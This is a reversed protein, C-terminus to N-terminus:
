AGGEELRLRRALERRGDHLHKKVTGTAIGLADAIEAVTRDELYHLAVVQAQRRPLRRVAGWFEVDEASLQALTSAQGFALRGLAKAESLRRRFASVSMNAVVRRVWSGPQEYAAIRAWDRHAALFAEQALDEAVWRNGSLAYALGVVAPYETAYFDEFSGLSGVIRPGPAERM